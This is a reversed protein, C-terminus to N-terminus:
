LYEEEKGEWKSGTCTGDGIHAICTLFTYNGYLYCYPVIRNPNKYPTGSQKADEKIKMQERLYVVGINTLEMIRQIQAKILTVVIDDRKMQATRLTQIDEPAPSWPEPQKKWMIPRRNRRFGRMMPGNNAGFRFQSVEKGEEYMRKVIPSDSAVTNLDRLFADVFLKPEFHASQLVPFHERLVRNAEECLSGVEQTAALTEMLTAPPQSLAAQLADCFSAQASSFIDTIKGVAQVNKFMRALQIANNAVLCTKTVWESNHPAAPVYLLYNNTVEDDDCGIYCHKDSTNDVLYKMPVFAYTDNFDSYWGGRMALVVNRVSDTKFVISHSDDYINLMWEYDAWSVGHLKCFERVLTWLEERFHVTIKSLFEASNPIDRFFDTLDEPGSLDTWLHFQFEPNQTIWSQARKPIHSSLYAGPRRFWIWNMTPILRYECTAIETDTVTRIEGHLLTHYVCYLMRDVDSETFTEDFIALLSKNELSCELMAGARTSAIAIYEAMNEPGPNGETDRYINTVVDFMIHIRDTLKRYIKGNVFDYITWHQRADYPLTKAIKYPRIPDRQFMSRKTFEENYGFLRKRLDTLLVPTTM